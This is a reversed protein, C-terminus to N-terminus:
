EAESGGSRLARFAMDTLMPDRWLFGVLKKTEGNVIKLSKNPQITVEVSGLSQKIVSDVEGTFNTDLTGEVIDESYTDLSFESKIPTNAIMGQSNAMILYGDLLGDMQASDQYIFLMMSTLNASGMFTPDGVWMGEVADTALKQRRKSKSKLFIVILVLVAVAAVCLGVHWSRMVFRPKEIKFAIDKLLNKIGRQTPGTTFFIGNHDL